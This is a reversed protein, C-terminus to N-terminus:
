SCKMFWNAYTWRWTQCKCTYSTLSLLLFDSIFWCIFYHPLDGPIHSLVRFLWKVIVHVLKLTVNLLVINIPFLTGETRIIRLDNLSIHIWKRYNWWYQCKSQHYISLCFSNWLIVWAFYFECKKGSYSKESRSRRHTSRQLINLPTCKTISSESM